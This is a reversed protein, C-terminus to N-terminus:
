AFRRQLRYFTEHSMASRDRLLEVIADYLAVRPHHWGPRHLWGLNLLIAKGASCERAAYRSRYWPLFELYRDVTRRYEAAIDFEALPRFDGWEKLAVARLFGDVVEGRRPCDGIEGIRGKKVAYALDYRGAEMLAADGFALWAKHIFKIFRIREEGTLPTADTIRRKIDLLLKGRNLLLRSGEALPIAALPYDPLTDLVRPDGWAVRHGHKMEYDLLSCKRRPLAQRAYPCLDVAIGLSASLQRELEGLRQRIARDVRDVVVVLDYDNFPSQSGDAEIFPTGEGRGYGGILVGTAAIPAIAEAILALDADIRADLEASGKVTYKSM